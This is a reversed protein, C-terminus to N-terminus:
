WPLQQTSLDVIIPCLLDGSKMDLAGQATRLLHSSCASENSQWLNIIHLIFWLALHCAFKAAFIEVMAASAIGTM